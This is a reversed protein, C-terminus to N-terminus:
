VQNLVIDGSVTKARLEIHDAGEAPQGASQLDSRISGSLTSLDTWVPTGAPIGIRIDSSAGKVTFKGRRATGVVLDGSGTVMSVDTRADVVRLDGSGTKVVAPGNNSGIEIDGSGTSAAVAGEAHQVTVDGSGSKIRLEANAAGVTVDGSGTEVSAPGSLGALTVDGSGTKLRCSGLIGDATVDASGLKGALDSDTPLTVAVDLAAESGFFGARQRPAVISIQRGSQEVRVEEAHPGAIEVLSETTDTATIHVAGRGVEVYLAVPEHTEFHHQTMTTELTHPDV